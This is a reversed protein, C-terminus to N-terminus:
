ILRGRVLQFGYVVRRTYGLVGKLIVDRRHCACSEDIKFNAMSVGLGFVVYSVTGDFSLNRDLLKLMIGYSRGCLTSFRGPVYPGRCPVCVNGGIHRYLRREVRNRAGVNGRTRFKVTVGAAQHRVLAM